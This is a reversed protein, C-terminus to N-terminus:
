SKKKALQEKLYDVWPIASPDIGDLLAAYFSAYSGFVLLSLAAAFPTRGSLEQRWLSFGNKRIIAETIQSRTRIRPHAHTSTLSIFRVVRHATRPFRLGEIFHHNLEPLSFFAAFTKANENIQNAFTHMGGCLFDPGIIVPAYGHMFVALKKADNRALPVTPEYKKGIAYISAIDRKVAGSSYVILGLHDLIGLLGFLMYGQGMRPQGCPNHKPVFQYVPLKRRRLMVSLEGGVTMGIVRIRKQLAQKAISIVEETTGSYSSLIVLSRRTASAPLAYTSVVQLPVRLSGAFVAAINHAPLASGGMGAVIVQDIGHTYSAPLVLSQTEDWAQRCQAGLLAISGRLNRADHREFTKANDLIHM